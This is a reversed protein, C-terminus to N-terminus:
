RGARAYIRAGTCAIYYGGSAAINGFSFVVPKRYKKGMSVLSHWMFDSAVASGGGSNVRIVIARVSGDEFAAALAKRFTEDGIAEPAIFGSDKQEGRVISGDVHVIAIRPM